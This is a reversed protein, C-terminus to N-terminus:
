IINNAKLIKEAREKVLWSPFLYDVYPPAKRWLNDRDQGSLEEYRGSDCIRMVREQVDLVSEFRDLGTDIEFYGDVDRSMDLFRIFNREGNCFLEATIHQCNQQDYCRGTDWTTTLELTNKIKQAPIKELFKDVVYGSLSAMAYFGREGRNCVSVYYGGTGWFGADSMHTETQFKMSAILAKEDAYKERLCSNIQWLVKAVHEFSYEDYESIYLSM